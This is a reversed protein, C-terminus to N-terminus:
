DLSMAFREITRHFGLKRYFEIAEVNFSWASVELQSIGQERAWTKSAEFLSRGVGSHRAGDGVVLQDIEVVRRADRVDNGPISRAVLVVLGIIKKGASEAVLIGRDPGAITQHFWSQERRKGVPKRFVEPLAVRHQEDLAEFLPILSPIDSPVAPRISFLPSMPRARNSGGFTPQVKDSAYKLHV